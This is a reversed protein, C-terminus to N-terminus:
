RINLLQVGKLYTKIIKYIEPHCGKNNNQNKEYTYSVNGVRESVVGKEISNYTDDSDLLVMAGVIQAKKIKEPIVNSGNRPFNLEQNCETKKGYFNLSELNDLSQTLLVSKDEESMNDWLERKNDSSLYHSSIYSNAEEITVYGIKM